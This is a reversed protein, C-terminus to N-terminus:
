GENIIDVIMKYGGDKKKLVNKFYWYKIGVKLDSLPMNNVVNELRIWRDHKNNASESAYANLLRTIIENSKFHRPISTVNEKFDWAIEDSCVLEVETLYNELLDLKTCDQAIDSETDEVTLFRFHPLANIKNEEEEVNIKSHVEILEDMKEYHHEYVHLSDSLHYYSGVEVGLCSAIVEQIVTWEYVNISSWGWIADNSRMTLTCDLKGNRIMFHVWNCCPFDKSSGVNGELEPDWISIIAQRSAPDKTLTKIVFMLQDNNNKWNRIRPGYGARWVKGDDSFDVARPLFQSLWEVDNRGAMVWMTEALSQFPNNGRKPYILTRALPNTLEVIVPHLEKTFKGTNFKGEVDNGHEKISDLVCYFADNINPSQITHIM